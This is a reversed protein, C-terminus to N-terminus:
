KPKPVPMVLEVALRWTAAPGRHWVHVYWSSDPASATGTVWSGYTYGMDGSGAIYQATSVIQVRSERGTLAALAATRGYQRPLGERLAIVDDTAYHKLAAPVGESAALRAFTADAQYLSKRAALPRSGLGPAVVPAAYKVEDTGAGRAPHSIGGDLAVKWSGDAMRRWLSMYEGNGDAQKQTSDRRWSWPGTSWGLKGDASIAAHAPRWDLLGNWGAPQRQFFTAGIVPGPRFVVGTPSLWELFGARVGNARVSAAFAREAEVVERAADASAALASPLLLLAALPLLLFPSAVNRTM